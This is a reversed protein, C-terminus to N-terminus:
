CLQTVMVTALGYAHEALKGLKHSNIPIIQYAHDTLLYIKTRIRKKAIAQGYHRQGGFM